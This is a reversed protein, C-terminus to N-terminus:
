GCAERKDTVFGGDARRFYLAHIVMRTESHLRWPRCPSDAPGLPVLYLDDGVRVAGDPQMPQAAADPPLARLVDGRSSDPAPRAPERAGGDACALPLAALLMPFLRSFPRM